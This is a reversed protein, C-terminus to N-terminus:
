KFDVWERLTMENTEHKICVSSTEIKKKKGNDDIREQGTLEVLNTLAM